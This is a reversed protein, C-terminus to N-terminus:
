RIRRHGHVGVLRTTDVRVALLLTFLRRASPHDFGFPRCLRKLLRGAKDHTVKKAMDLAEIRSVTTAREIQRVVDVYETVLDTLREKPVDVEGLETALTFGQETMAIRLSEVGEAVVMEGPQLMERIIASWELRRAETADDWTRDDIRVERLV